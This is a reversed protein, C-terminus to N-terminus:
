FRLVTSFNLSIVRTKMNLHVHSSFFFIKSLLVSVKIKVKLQNREGRVRKLDAKLKALDEEFIVSSASPSAAAVSAKQSLRDALQLTDQEQMKVIEEVLNQKEVELEDVRKKTSFLYALVYYLKSM